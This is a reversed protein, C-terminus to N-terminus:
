EPEAGKLRRGGAETEHDNQKQQGMAQERDLVVRKDAVEVRLLFTRSEYAPAM